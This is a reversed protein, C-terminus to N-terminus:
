QNIIHYNFYDVDVYGQELNNYTFIGVMDGQFNACSQIYVDGLSHFNVGDTSYEYRLENNFLSISRLYVEKVDTLLPGIINESDNKRYLLRKTQQKMEVGLLSYDQGGNFHSLGAVQGDAMNSIDVKITVVATDSRMHRQNLTNSIKFFDASENATKSAYLRMFGARETLSWKDDRPQHNWSWIPQLEEEDFHDSGHPLYIEESPIPKPLQWAMKGYGQEDVDVGVIPWDDIWTVPLLVPPRGDSNYRNLQAIWFWRGDDTDVFGGQGPIEQKYVGGLEAASRDMRKIVYEGPNGPSGPSGDPHTGYINKSRYIHTGANEGLFEIHVLYYYGNRKYIKNGESSYHPSILTGGNPYQYVIDDENMHDVDADLLQRGDPSMQFLYSYWHKGPPRSSGLYAKGDDDWFPCPDTWKLTKLPKGNKDKLQWITWPGEPNEATAAFFGDTYFNVFVWFKGDHYRLTPAYVGANFRNMRQWTFEPTINEMDHFVGGLNQWNVLDKSHLITVGPVSEFTSSVMYYDKGVRIPDPDSFDGAIVPNRFTGDGQDGWQSTQQAYAIQAVFALM